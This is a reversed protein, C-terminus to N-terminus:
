TGSQPPDARNFMVKVSDLFHSTRPRLTNLSRAGDGEDDIIFNGADLEALMWRVFSLVDNALVYKTLEDRGFNIVQGRVGATDPDLDIGLQNGGWDHAFPIWLKNAFLPKVYDPKASKCRWSLGKIGDEGETDVANAWIRWDNLAHELPLFLLGYFLGTMSDPKQGDHWRYLDLFEDPLEAGVETSFQALAAESAGDNLGPILEPVNEKLWDELQSFM